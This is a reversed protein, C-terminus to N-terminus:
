FSTKSMENTPPIGAVKKLDDAVGITELIDWARPWIGLGAGFPSIQATSEYIDVQINPYKAMACAFTLGGIGAGSLKVHTAHISTKFLSSVM